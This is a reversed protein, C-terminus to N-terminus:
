FVSSLWKFFTGVERRRRHLKKEFYHNNVMEFINALPPIKSVGPPVNGISFYSFMLVSVFDKQVNKTCEIKM